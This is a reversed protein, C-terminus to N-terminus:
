GTFPPELKRPNCANRLGDGTLHPYLASCRAVGAEYNPIPSDVPDIITAWRVVPLDAQRGFDTAKLLLVDGESSLERVFTEHRLWIDPLMFTHSGTTTTQRADTVGEYKGDIQLIWRGDLRLGKLSAKRKANLSALAEDRSLLVEAPEPEEEPEESLTSDEDEPEPDAIEPESSPTPEPTQEPTTNPPPASAVTSSFTQHAWLGGGAILALALAAVTIILGTKTPKKKPGTPQPTYGAPSPPGAVSASSLQTAPLQTSTGLITDEITNPLPSTQYPASITADWAPLPQDEIWRQFRKLETVVEVANAPRQDPDKALLRNMIQNIATEVPGTEVLQPIPASIHQQAIQFGTGAFPAQGSLLSWFLCGLSYLDSSTTAPRGLHREPATYLLSGVLMGTQTLGPQEGQAIGFDCLYAFLGSGTKAVLVNSPKVDRHVIGLQHVDVLASAVQTTLEAALGPPLPGHEAVYTALDGGPVHQMALYLCDGVQGHDHIQIVHPSNLRALLEAEHTFRQVFGPDTSLKPDLVKLAVLRNLPHQLAAFVVGMGGRGIEGTITFGGFRDGVEPFSTAM